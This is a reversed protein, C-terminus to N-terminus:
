SLSINSNQLLFRKPNEYVLKKLTAEPVGMLKLNLLVRSISMPDGYGWGLASNFILKDTGFKEILEKAETPTAKRHAVYVGNLRPSVAIGYGGLGLDYAGDITDATLDDLLLLNRDIAYDDIAKKLIKVMKPLNTEKDEHPTHMIVPMQYTKAMQLQELFVSIEDDTFKELGIEGMACVNKDKFYRPLEKITERAITVDHMDEPDVSVGVLLKIGHQDARKKEAQLLRDYFQFYAEKSCRKEGTFTSPVVVAEVGSIAMLEYENASRVDMHVHTDIIPIRM